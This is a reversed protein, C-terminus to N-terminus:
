ESGRELLPAPKWKAVRDKQWACYNARVANAKTLHHAYSSNMYVSASKLSASSPIDREPTKVIQLNKNWAGGALVQELTTSFWKTLDYDPYKVIESSLSVKTWIYGSDGRYQAGQYYHKWVNSGDNVSHNIDGLAGIESAVQEIIQQVSAVMAEILDTSQEFPLHGSGSCVGNFFGWQAVTYGHKAILGSPLMQASGCIQCTGRHTAKNSKMHIDFGIGEGFYIM